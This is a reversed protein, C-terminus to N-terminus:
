SDQSKRIEVTLALVAQRDENPVLIWFSSNVVTKSALVYFFFCFFFFFFFFFVVVFFRRIGDCVCSCFIDRRWMIVAFIWILRRMRAAQDPSRQRGFFYAVVHFIDRHWMLLAFVCILRFHATVHSSDRRWILAAFTCILRPMRAAQDPIRQRNIM